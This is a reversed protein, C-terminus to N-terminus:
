RQQSDFYLVETKCGTAACPRIKTALHINCLNILEM